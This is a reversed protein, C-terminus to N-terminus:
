KRNKHSKDEVAYLMDVNLDKSDGEIQQVSESDAKSEYKAGRTNDYEVGNEVGEYEVVREGRETLRGKKKTTRLTNRNVAASGEENSTYSHIDNDM